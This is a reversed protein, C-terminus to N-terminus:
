AATARLEGLLRAVTSVAGRLQEMTHESSIFFRLRAQDEAVAPYTMPFVNIGGEFLRAALRLCRVSDHVVVPVVATSGSLATDLGAARAEELFLACNAGLKAVRWPEDQLLRLAALAAAASAPPMGASFIFGPATYKLYRLLKGPGAVYGGVSSLTKSLTGMWLDVERRDVAFHEGIGRGTPGMVGLSHAEDVFVAAGHKRRIALLRPLDPFDGDMSYAGEVVILAKEVDGRHRRLLDDLADLDNHAFPLRRAHSLQCGLLISNHALEDHIVLDRPGLVHGLITVNTAYGATLVLADEVGLFSAIEQELEAHVPRQGSALRSASASTGYQEIADQAARKVRPDAALGLYNYGSFDALTRGGIVVTGAAPGELSHFCPDSLGLGALHRMRAHFADVERADELKEVRAAAGPGAEAAPAGGAGRQELLQRLLHKRQETDPKGEASM